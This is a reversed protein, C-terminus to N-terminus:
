IKVQKLIGFKKHYNPTEFIGTKYLPRFTKNLCKNKLYYYYYYNPSIEIESKSTRLYTTFQKAIFKRSPITTM